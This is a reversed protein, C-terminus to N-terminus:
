DEMSFTFREGGILQTIPSLRRMPPDPDSRVNVSGLENIRTRNRVRPSQLSSSDASEKSAHGRFPRRRGIWRQWRIAIKTIKLVAPGPASTRILSRFDMPLSGPLGAEPDLLSLWIRDPAGTGTTSADTTFKPACCFWRGSFSPRGTWALCPLGL